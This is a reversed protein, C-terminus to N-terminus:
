VERKRKNKLNETREAIKTQLKAINTAALTSEPDSFRMNNRNMYLHEARTICQLNSIDINMPNGDLFIVISGKKIPGNHEEWVVNHKLRWKNPESVKIEIYGDVNVRESGVPRHNHTIHGKQFMTAKVKDFVEPPMKQGKNQPVHGKKFCGNRGTNLKHNGIYSKIRGITITSEFRENFAKQIEAYSHGPVYSKMFSHEEDTYIHGYM